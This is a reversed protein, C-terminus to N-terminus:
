RREDATANGANGACKPCEKAPFNFREGCVTCVWDYTTLGCKAMGKGKCSRCPASGTGNCSPCQLQGSAGCPVCRLRDKKGTGDCNYCKRLGRGSCSHCRVFGRGQCEVCRFTGTGRCNPCDPQTCPAFHAQRSISSCGSVLLAVGCLMVAMMVFRKM